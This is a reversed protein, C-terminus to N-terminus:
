APEQPRAYRVPPTPVLLIFRPDTGGQMLRDIQSGLSEASFEGDCNMRMPELTSACEPARPYLHLSLLRKKESRAPSRDCARNGLLESTRCTRPRTTTSAAFSPRRVSSSTMAMWPFAPASVDPEETVNALRHRVSDTSSRVARGPSPALRTLHECRRKTPGADTKRWSNGTRLFSREWYAARGIRKNIRPEGQRISM